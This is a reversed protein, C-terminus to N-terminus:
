FLQYEQSYMIAKILRELPIRVETDNGTTEYDIWEYSWDAQPLNDLFVTHVFYDLRETDPEECFMNSLLQGVVAYADAPTTIHDVVYQVMDLQVGGLDGGALIRKGQILMEPLKYRAVITGADLWARDYGPEQYYAPYGAVSPPLYLSFGAKDFMIDSVAKWYFNHHLNYYDTALDPLPIQLFSLSQLVLELPSKLKGGVINNTSNADDEDYFHESKLLQQITIGMNYDNTRLTTALPEIIDTEVESSINKGVFFRYMKRCIYRATEDQAFVIDVLDSIERYMDAEDVAGIITAFNFASSLTKDTTDHRNYKPNGAPINTDPDILLPDSRDGKRWGSFVKAAESIDAETYNTYNDPGIQPGKGITFLELFERAYNENPSNDSNDTGNLYDLMVTDVSMKLALTKYSGFTYFQLLALHDFFDEGSSANVDATICTHLFFQMKHHLSPDHLAEHMWWSLTYKRRKKGSSPQVQATSCAPPMAGCNIWELGTEANIPEPSIPASVIMLQNVADEATLLAFADIKARTIHYTTRRLLHKALRHGLVGTKPALSPM